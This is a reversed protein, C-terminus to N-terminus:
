SEKEGLLMKIVQKLIDKIYIDTLKSEKRMLNSMVKVAAEKGQGQENEIGKIIAKIVRNDQEESSEVTNKGQYYKEITQYAIIRM